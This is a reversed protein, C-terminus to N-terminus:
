LDDKNNKNASFINFLDKESRKKQIFFININRSRLAQMANDYNLLSMKKVRFFCYDHLIENYRM